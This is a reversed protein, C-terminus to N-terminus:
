ATRRLLPRVLEALAARLEEPERVALSTTRTLV